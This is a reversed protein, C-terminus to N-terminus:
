GGDNWDHKQAARENRKVNTWCVRISASFFFFGIISYMIDTSSHIERWHSLDTAEENVIKLLLSSAMKWWMIDFGFVLKPLKLSISLIVILTSSATICDDKLEEGPRHYIEINPFSQYVYWLLDIARSYSAVSDFPVHVQLRVMVAWLIPSVFNFRYPAHLVHEDSKSIVFM